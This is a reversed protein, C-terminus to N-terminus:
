SYKSVSGKFLCVPDFSTVATSGQGVPVLTSTFVLCSALSVHACLFPLMLVSCPLSCRCVLSLPKLPGLGALVQM